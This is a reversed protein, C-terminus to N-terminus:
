EMDTKSVNTISEEGKGKNFFKINHGLIISTFEDNLTSTIYFRLGDESFYQLLTKKYNESMDSYIEVIYGERYKKLDDDTMLALGAKKAPTVIYEKYHKIKTGILFNLFTMDNQFNLNKPPKPAIMSLLIPLIQFILMIVMLVIIVTM